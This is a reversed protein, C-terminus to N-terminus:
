IGFNEFSVISGFGRNENSISFFILVFCRALTNGEQKEM